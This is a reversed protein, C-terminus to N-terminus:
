AGPPKLARIVNRLADSANRIEGSLQRIIEVAERAKQVQLLEDVFDERTQLTKLLQVFERRAKDLDGSAQETDSVIRNWEGLLFDKQDKTFRTDKLIQDLKGQAHRLAQAGLEAVKSDDAVSGLAGAVFARLGEIEAKLKSADTLEGIAKARGEITTNFSELSKKLSDVQKAFDDVPSAPTEQTQAPADTRTQAVAVFPLALVSAAGVLSGILRRM